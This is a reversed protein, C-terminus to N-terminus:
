NLALKADKEKVYEHIVLFDVFMQLLFEDKINQTIFIKISINKENKQLMNTFIWELKNKDIKKGDYDVFEIKTNDEDNVEVKCSFIVVFDDVYVLKNYIKNEIKDYKIRGNSYAVENM